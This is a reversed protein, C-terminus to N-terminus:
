QNLKHQELIGKWYALAEMFVDIAYGSTGDAFRVKLAIGGLRDQGLEFSDLLRSAVASVGTEIVAKSSRAVETHKSGNALDYCIDLAPCDKRIFNQFARLSACGFPKSGQSREQAAKYAWESMHWATVAFNFAHDSQNQEDQALRKLDRALKELLNAPSKLVFSYGKM